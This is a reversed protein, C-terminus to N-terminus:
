GAGSQQPTVIEPVVTLLESPIHTMITNLRQSISPCLTTRTRHRWGHPLAKVAAQLRQFRKSHLLLLPRREPSLAITTAAILDFLDPEHLQLRHMLAALTAATPTSPATM